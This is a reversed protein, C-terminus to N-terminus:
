NEPERVRSARAIRIEEEMATLKESPTPEWTKEPLIGYQFIHTPSEVAKLNNQHLEIMEIDLRIRNLRDDNRKIREPRILKVQGFRQLTKDSTEIYEKLSQELTAKKLEYDEIKKICFDIQENHRRIAATREKRYYELANDTKSDIKDTQAEEWRRNEGELKEKEKQLKQLQTLEDM